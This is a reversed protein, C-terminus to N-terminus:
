IGQLSKLDTKVMLFYVELGDLVAFTLKFPSEVADGDRSLLFPFRGMKAQM